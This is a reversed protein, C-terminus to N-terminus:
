ISSGLSVFPLDVWKHFVINWYHASKGAVACSDVSTYLELPFYAM